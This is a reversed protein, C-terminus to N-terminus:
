QANRDAPDLGVVVLHHADVDEGFMHAHTDRREVAVETRHGAHTRQLVLFLESELFGADFEDGRGVVDGDAVRSNIEIGLYRVREKRASVTKSLLSTAYM